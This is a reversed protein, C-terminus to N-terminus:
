GLLFPNELIRKDNVSNVYSVISGLLLRFGNTM